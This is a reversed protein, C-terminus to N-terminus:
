NLAGSLFRLTKDYPMDWKAHLSVIRRGHFVYQIDGVYNMVFWSIVRKRKRKNFELIIAEHFNLYAGDSTPCLPHFMSAM